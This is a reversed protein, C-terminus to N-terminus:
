FGSPYTDPPENRKSVDIPHLASSVDIFFFADYRMPIISPVYNGRENQPDYVVGVARHGIAQQLISVQQLDKSFVLQDGKGNNHLMEEWSGQRAEPLKMREFKSGWSDAAIVTGSYSGFGVIYAKEPGYKERVLQGVNVMGSSVMDTYRADGVHTNHEWVIAKSESGHFQLLRELTESMHRDRINWSMSSSSVMARYYSEGNKAVLANQEMLFHPLTQGVPGPTYNNISQWLKATEDKCDAAANLVAYAYEEADEGFPQFCANVKTANEVLAPQQDKLYPMIEEMAEWLCYVDLGFFGAKEADAKNQNHRNLWTVLQAVEYNAWMWTPWRDYQRLLQVSQLSDKAPGKIFQNVRYSDAWEGEVAIFDFGKEEILRKSIATRWKYFESTGHSAEGLLVVRADGIAEMLSNLDSEQRIEESEFQVPQNTANTGRTCSIIVVFAVPFLLKLIFNRANVNM